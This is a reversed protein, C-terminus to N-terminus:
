ALFAFLGLGGYYALAVAFSGGVSAGWRSPEALNEHMAPFCPHGAFCFVLLGISRPVDWLSGPLAAEAAAPFAWSPLALLYIVFSATAGLLFLLSLLSVYAYARVPILIM